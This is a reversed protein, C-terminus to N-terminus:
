FSFEKRSCCLLFTLLYIDSKSLVGLLFSFDYTMVWRRRTKWCKPISLLSDSASAHNICQQPVLRIYFPRIIWLRAKTVTTRPIWMPRHFSKLYFAVSHSRQRVTYRAAAISSCEMLWVSVMYIYIYIGM